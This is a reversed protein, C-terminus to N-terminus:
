FRRVKEPEADSLANRAMAKGKYWTSEIQQGIANTLAYPVITDAAYLFLMQGKIPISLVFVWLASIGLLRLAKKGFDKM